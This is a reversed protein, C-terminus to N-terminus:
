LWISIDGQENTVHRWFAHGIALGVTTLGMSRIDRFDTNDWANFLPTLLPVRGVIETRIDPPGMVGMVALQRLDDAIAADPTLNQTEDFSRVNVQLSNEDRLCPVFMNRNALQGRLQEPVLERSFGLTFYGSSVEFIQREISTPLLGDLSAVGAYKMHHYASMKTPLNDVFPALNRELNWYFAALDLPGAYRTYRIMFCVAIACRQDRTLKPVTTIAENLVIAKIDRGAQGARDVLLDILVQEVDDEGSLAYAKQANFVAQIVDPDNMNGLGGPQRALLQRLFESTLKEVRADVVEKAVDRMLLFNAHFDSIRNRRIEDVARRIEDVTGEIVIDRGAQYNVSNDGGAQQQGRRM